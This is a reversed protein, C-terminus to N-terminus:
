SKAQLTEMKKYIQQALTEWQCAVDARHDSNATFTLTARQSSVNAWLTRKVFCSLAEEYYFCFLSWHGRLFVFSGM